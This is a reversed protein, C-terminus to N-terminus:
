VKTVYKLRKKKKVLDSTKKMETIYVNTTLFKLFKDSFPHQTILLQLSTDRFIELLSIVSFDRVSNSHVLVDQLSTLDM